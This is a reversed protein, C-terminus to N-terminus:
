SLLANIKFTDRIAQLSLLLRAIWPYVGFRWNLVSFVFRAKTSCSNVGGGNVGIQERIRWVNKM